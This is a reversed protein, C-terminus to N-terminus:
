RFADPLPKGYRAGLLGVYITSTSVEALYAAEPDSDRGGFREFAVPTAGVAEIGEIAAARYHEYGAMVSSVFSASIPPGSHSRRM